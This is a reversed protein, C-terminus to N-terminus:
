YIERTKVNIFNEKSLEIKYHFHGIFTAMTYNAIALSMAFPVDDGLLETMKKAIVNPGSDFIGLRELENSVLLLKDQNM